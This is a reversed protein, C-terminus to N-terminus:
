TIGSVPGEWRESSISEGATEADHIEETCFGGSCSWYADWVSNFPRWHHPDWIFKWPGDTSQPAMRSSFKINTMSDSTQRCAGNSVLM